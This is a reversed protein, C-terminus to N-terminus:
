QEFLQNLWTDGAPTAAYAPNGLSRNITKHGKLRKGPFGHRPVRTGGQMLPAKWAGGTGAFRARLRDGSAARALGSALLAVAAMIVIMGRNM